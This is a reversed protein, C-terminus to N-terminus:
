GDSDCKLEFRDERIDVYWRGYLGYNVELHARCEMLLFREVARQVADGDLCLYLFLDGYYMSLKESQERCDWGNVICLCSRARFFLLFFKIQEDVDASWTKEFTCSVDM